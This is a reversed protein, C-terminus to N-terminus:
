RPRCLLWTRSHTSSCAWRTMRTSDEIGIGMREAESLIKQVDPNGIFNDNVIITDALGSEILEKVDAEGYKSSGSSLGSLFREM